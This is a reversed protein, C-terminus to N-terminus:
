SHTSHNLFYRPINYWYSWYHWSSQSFCSFIYWIRKILMEELKCFFECSFYYVFLDCFLGYVFSNCMFSSIIWGCLYTQVGSSMMRKYWRLCFVESSKAPLWRAYFVNSSKGLLRRLTKWSDESLNELTQSLDSFNSYEFINLYSWFLSLKSFLKKHKFLLGFM